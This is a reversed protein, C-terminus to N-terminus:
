VPKKVDLLKLKKSYKKPNNEKEKKTLKDDVYACFENGRKRVDEYIILERIYERLVSREEIEVVLDGFGKIVRHYTNKPIEYFFGEVLIVPLEDEIQLSWGSSEQVFVVRDDRDRHWVLEESSVKSDFRRTFIGGERFEKFPYKM